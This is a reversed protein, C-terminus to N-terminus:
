KAWVAHNLARYPPRNEHSASGGTPQINAFGLGTLGVAPIASPIIGILAVSPLATIETHTHGLDAHAHAPIEAVTLTHNNQGGSNDPSYTTGAGVTFRDRLDPVFFNDADIIFAPDLVAYLLPYDLRAYTVGDCPLSNAPANQTVYPFVMGIMCVSGSNDYEDWMTTMLAAAEAPSMTGQEEWNFSETLSLLAGNVCGVFQQNDPIRIVRCIFNTPPPNDPTLWALKSM